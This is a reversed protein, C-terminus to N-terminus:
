MLGIRDYKDIIYIEKQIFVLYYYLALKNNLFPATNQSKFFGVIM